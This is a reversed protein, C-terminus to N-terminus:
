MHGWASIGKLGAFGLLLSAPISEGSSRSANARAISSSTIAAAFSAFQLGTIMAVSSKSESSMWIVMGSLSKLPVKFSTSSCDTPDIRIIMASRGSAVPAAMFRTIELLLSM